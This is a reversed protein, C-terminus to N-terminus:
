TEIDRALERAIAESQQTLGVGETRWGSAEIFGFSFAM